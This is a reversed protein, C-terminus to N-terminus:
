YRFCDGWKFAVAEREDRPIQLLSDAIFAEHSQTLLEKQCGLTSQAMLKPYTNELASVRHKDDEPDCM